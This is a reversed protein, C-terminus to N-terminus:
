IYYKGYAELRIDIIVELYSRLARLARLANLANLADGYSMVIHNVGYIQIFHGYLNTGLLISELFGLDLMMQCHHSLTEILRM